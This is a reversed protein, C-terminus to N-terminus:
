PAAGRFFIDNGITFASASIQRNLDSAEPGVHLRVNGFDVGGFASGFRDQADAALPQGAHRASDISRELSDTAVGGEPGIIGGADTAVRRLINGPLVEPQEQHRDAGGAPDQDDAQSRDGPNWLTSVVANAVRDAEREFSDGAPGIDMKAQAILLSTARNGISKQLSLLQAPASRRSRESAPVAAQPQHRSGHEHEHEAEGETAGRRM